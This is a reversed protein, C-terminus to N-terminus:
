DALTESHRNALLVSITYAREPSLGALIEAAADARMRAIFGAAFEPSMAGFLAAAEETKMNEYVSTLQSLDSESAGEARALTAKLSEEIETLEEIKESIRQEAINVAQERDALSLMKNDIIERQHALDQFAREFDFEDFRMKSGSRAESSLGVAIPEDPMELTSVRLAGSFVFMVGLVILFSSHTLWRHRHRVQGHKGESM